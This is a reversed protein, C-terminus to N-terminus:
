SLVLIFNSNEKKDTNSNIKEMEILQHRNSSKSKFLRPVPNKEKEKKCSVSRVFPISATSSSSRQREFSSEEKEVKEFDISTNM